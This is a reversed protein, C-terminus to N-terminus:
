ELSPLPPVPGLGIDAQDGIQGGDDKLNTGVSYVVWGDPLKKMLLPKGTFPDTTQDEPLKLGALGTVKVGQQELRTLANLVRLCRMTARCRETAERGRRIAPLVLDALVAWPTVPRAVAPPGARLVQDYPQTALALQSDMVDLYYIVASNWFGRAPWFRGLNQDHFATLGLARESILAQRYAEALDHRALEADLADRASDAVPGSRLVRNATEVGLGRVAIAVLHGIMMPQKDIHRALRLIDVASQLAEDRRGHALLVTARYSLLRAASRLNGVEDISAALFANFSLSYDLEPAFDPATAAQEVLTVAQPYAKLVDELTKLEAPGLRDNKYADSEYFSALDKNMATLNQRARRLYVAANEEPPIRECTLDALRVPCGEGRIAQLRKELARGSRWVFVANAILLVAILGGLVIATWKLIRKLM